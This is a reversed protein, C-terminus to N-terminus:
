QDQPRPCICFPHGAPDLLVRWREGGPQFTPRTAGLDGFSQEARDLDDVYLDLHYRKGGDTDPWAPPTYGDVRGFGISTHGDGIMAYEDAQATIEWGLVAAYFGALASPDPCDLNTMILTATTSTSGPRAAPTTTM